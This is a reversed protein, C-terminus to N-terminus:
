EEDRLMKVEAKKMEEIAKIMEDDKAESNKIKELIDVGEVIVKSVRIKRTKIWEPKLLIREENDGEM